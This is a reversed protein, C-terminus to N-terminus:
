QNEFARKYDIMTLLVAMKEKESNKDLAQLIKHLMNVLLHNISLGTENGYQSPDRTPAMDNIIYASLIKDTAKAFNISQSIPRFDSLNEPSNTKPVPSVFEKKWIDPYQGQEFMSNIINCLPKSIEESFEALLKIPIDDKITASKKNMGKFVEKIRHPTVFNEEFGSQNHTATIDKFHDTTIPEFKNRTSSFFNSSLIFFYLCKRKKM